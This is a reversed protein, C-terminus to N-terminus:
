ISSVRAEAGCGARPAATIITRWFALRKAIKAREGIVVFSGEFPGKGLLLAGGSLAAYAAENLDHSAVPIILMKGKAPPWAALIALGLVAACCQLPIALSTPRCLM